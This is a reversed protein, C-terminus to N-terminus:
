QRAIRRSAHTVTAFFVGDFELPMVVPIEFGYDYAVYGIHRVPRPQWLQQVDAHLLPNTRALFALLSDLPVRHDQM